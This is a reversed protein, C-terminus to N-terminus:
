SVKKVNNHFVKFMCVLSSCLLDWCHPINVKPRKLFKDNYFYVRKHISLEKMYTEVILNMETKQAKIRYSYFCWKKGKWIKKM